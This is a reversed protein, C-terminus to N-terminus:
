CSEEAQSKKVYLPVLMDSSSAKDKLAEVAREFGKVRDALYFDSFDLEKDSVVTYGTSRESVEQKSLFCPAVTLKKCDYAACYFNDHAADVVCFAKEPANDDYALCDFSTLSLAGKGTALCFAKISSVGIRIGTFSGPGVVASFFDADGLELGVETLCEEVYPMLTLSHQTHCGKLYRVARRDGNVATVVLDGTTDIALYKM